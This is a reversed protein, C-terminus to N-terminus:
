PLHLLYRKELKSARTRPNLFLPTMQSLSRHNYEGIVETDPLKRLIEDKGTTDTFVWDKKKELLRPLEDETMYYKGPHDSYFLVEWYRAPKLYLHIEEAKGALRNFDKAVQFPAHYAAMKPYFSFFLSFMLALNSLSLTAIQRTLGSFKLVSILILIIFLLICLWYAINKEPFFWFVFLGIITWLLVPVIVHLVSVTKNTRKWAAKGSLRLVFWAALIMFLPVVSMLYHPNKTKSVSLVLLYPVIGGVTFFEESADFKWKAVIYDRIKMYLGLLAFVTFPALMYLTTHLYFAPDPNQVYYSGTIRGMNNTWFYFKIGENGFQRYLGLM